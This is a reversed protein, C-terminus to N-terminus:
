SDLCKGNSFTYSNPSTSVVLLHINLHCRHSMCTRKITPAHCVEVNNIMHRKLVAVTGSCSRRDLSQIRNLLPWVSSSAQEVAREDSIQQQQQQSLSASSSSSLPSGRQSLKNVKARLKAQMKQLAM